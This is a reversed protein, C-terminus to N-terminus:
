ENKDSNLNLKVHIKFLQRSFGNSSNFFLKYFEWTLLGKMDYEVGVIIYIVVKYKWSRYVYNNSNNALLYPQPIM